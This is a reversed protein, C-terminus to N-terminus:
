KSWLQTNMSTILFGSDFSHLDGVVVYIDTIDYKEIMDAVSGGVAYSSFYRPDYYHVQDYNAAVMPVFALGISDTM